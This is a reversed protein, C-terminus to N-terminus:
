KLYRIKGILIWGKPKDSILIPEKIFNNSAYKFVQCSWFMGVSRDLVQVCWLMQGSTLSLCSASTLRRIRQQVFRAFIQFQRFRLQHRDVIPAFDFFLFSHFLFHFCSDFMRRIRNRKTLKEFIIESKKESSECM